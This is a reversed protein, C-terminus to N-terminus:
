KPTDKIELVFAQLVLEFGVLFPLVSLMVTGTSAFLQHVYSTYWTYAGFGTGWILLPLGTIMFLVVPSFDRLIHKRYFRYWYGSFLRIPFSFAIKAFNISSKESGYRAPIPIDLVRFNFINLNILMDNEFFYRKSIRDFDLLSLTGTKVAFYGNQPDFVNWYGSATKTLFTMVFNGVLRHKPMADLERHLLFRNGKAYDCRSEIIPDLLKTLYAPDMQGDGDMKVVIGEPQALADKFASLTAGGVGQNSAHRIVTLRPDPWERLRGATQDTSCDDVVTVADVFAPISKLVDLIQDAVNYAPIVIHVRTERYL